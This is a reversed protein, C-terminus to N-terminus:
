GAEEFDALHYGRRPRSGPTNVAQGITQHAVEREGAIGGVPLAGTVVVHGGSRRQISAVVGDGEVSTNRRPPQLADHKM